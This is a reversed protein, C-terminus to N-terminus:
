YRGNGIFTVTAHGDRSNGDHYRVLAVFMDSSTAENKVNGLFDRTQITFTSAVGATALSIGSGFV